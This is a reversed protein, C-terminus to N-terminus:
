KPHKKINIATSSHTVDFNKTLAFDAAGIVQLIKQKDKLDM